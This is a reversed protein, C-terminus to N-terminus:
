YLAREPLEGKSRQAGKDCMASVLICEERQDSLGRGMSTQGSDGETDPVHHAWYINHPSLQPSETLFSAACFM